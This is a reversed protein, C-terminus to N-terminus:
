SHSQPMEKTPGSQHSRGTTPKWNRALRATIWDGYLTNEKAKEAEQAKLGLMRCVVHHRADPRRDIGVWRRGHDRAAILTTACGAFPDLM